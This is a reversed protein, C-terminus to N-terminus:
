LLSACVCFVASISASVGRVKTRRSLLYPRLVFLEKPVSARACVCVYVSVTCHQCKNQCGYRQHTDFPLFRLVRLECIGARVWCRVKVVKWLSCLNYIYIYVPTVQKSRGKRSIHSVPSAMNDWISTDYIVMRMAPHSRRAPWQMSVSRHCLDALQRQWLYRPGRILALKLHSYFPRRLRTSNIFTTKSLSTYHNLLLRMIYRQQVQLISGSL